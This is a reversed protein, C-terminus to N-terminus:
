REAIEGRHFIYAEWNVSHQAASIAALEEEYFRRGNTLVALNTNHCIKADVLAELMHLFEESDNAAEVGAAIKYGLSPGFLSVLLLMAMGVIAVCALVLFAAPVTFEALIAVM